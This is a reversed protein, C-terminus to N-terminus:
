LLLTKRGSSAITVLFSPGWYGTRLLHCGSISMSLCSWALVLIFRSLVLLGQAKLGSDAM